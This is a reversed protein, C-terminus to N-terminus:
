EKIRKAKIIIFGIIYFVLVAMASGSFDILVDRIQAARGAGTFYQITEDACAVLLCYILSYLPKIKISKLFGASLIGLMFFETFHALKRFLNHFMRFDLEIGFINKIEALLKQLLGGSVASSETATQMSMSFIICTWSITLILLAISIVSIKKNKQFTTM